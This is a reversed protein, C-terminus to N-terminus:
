QGAPEKQQTELDPNDSEDTSEDGTSQEPEEDTTDGPTIESQEEKTKEPEITKGEDGKLSDAAAPIEEGEQPEGKVGEVAGSDMEVGTEEEAPEGEGTKEMEEPQPMAAKTSDPSESVEEATKEREELELEGTEEETTGSETEGEGPEGEGPIEIEDPKPIEGEISDPVAGEGETPIEPASVTTDAVPELPEWLPVPPAYYPEEGPESAPVLNEALEIVEEEVGRREALIKNIRDIYEDLEKVRKERMYLFDLALGATSHRQYAFWSWWELNSNLSAEPIRSLNSKIYLLKDQMSMLGLEVEGLEKLLEKDNVAEAEAILDRVRQLTNETSKWEKRFNVTLSDSLRDQYAETVERQILTKQNMHYGLGSRLESALDLLRSYMRDYEGTLRRDDTEFLEKELDTLEKFVKYIEKQEALIDGVEPSGKISEIIMLRDFISKLESRLARYQDFMEIRGMLFLNPELRQLEGIRKSVTGKEYNIDQYERLDDVAVMVEEYEKVAQEDRGLVEESNGLLCFAEYFYESEPHNELIEKCLVIVQGYDNLKFHCWATLIIAKQLEKEQDKIKVKELRELAKRYDSQLYGIYGLKLNAQQRIEKTLDKGKIKKEAIEIYRLEADDLDLMAMACDAAKMKATIFGKTKPTTKDLLQQASTWDQYAMLYRATLESTQWFEDDPDDSFENEYETWLVKLQRTNGKDGAIVILKELSRRQHETNKTIKRVYLYDENARDYLTITFYSEARYFIIDDLNDYNYREILENFHLIAEHYREYQYSFLALDLDFNFMRQRQRPTATQILNDKIHRAQIYKQAYKERQLKEWAMYRIRSPAENLEHPLFYVSDEFTSLELPDFAELTGRWDEKRRQKVEATIGQFLWTLFAEHLLMENELDLSRKFLYLDTQDKYLAKQGDEDISAATVCTVTALFYILLRRVYM